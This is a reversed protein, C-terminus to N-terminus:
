LNPLGIELEVRTADEEIYSEAITSAPMAKTVVIADSDLRSPLALCALILVVLGRSLSM